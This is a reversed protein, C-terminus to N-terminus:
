LSCPGPKTSETKWAARNLSKETIDRGVHQLKIWHQSNSCTNKPTTESMKLVELVWRGYIFTPSLYFIFYMNFCTLAQKLYFKLYIDLIDLFCAPQLVLTHCWPPMRNRMKLLCKYSISLFPSLWPLFQGPQTRIRPSGSVTHGQQTVQCTHTQRSINRIPNKWLSSSKDTFCWFLMQDM